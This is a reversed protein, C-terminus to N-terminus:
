AIRLHEGQVVPRVGDPRTAVAKELVATIEEGVLEHRELLADRLAEVLDRNSALLRRVTARAADLVDELQARAASDGIVASVLDRDTAAFSVLSGTMGAAGVMQAATRTAAALDSAPGTTTQGFFLEEAVWGGMAIQVLARLDYSTRTYVEECDGHALLGLASGRKVITLVELTRNPAVLWATVAHGAEHTAILSRETQTYTVPHGLGVLETIRAQEVDIFRMADDGRRLANVLAEDLLHEVMVPTWGSTAAAVRDRVAPEDLEPHHSRRALFHDVLARRGHADPPNFTLRRDFRGPRLLAPDLHDARNTAAILLIPARTPRRQAIQRHAPLLLNIAAVLRNYLRDGGVPEDFSQMQVLLENVVGGTGESIMANRVVGAGEGALMAAPSPLGVFAATAAGLMGGRRLAIADIEEIFGIAGGETRAATRLAKFYSRIKRATAGYYMSQFSTASVFLFPVGAEAAMAKATLTKGTGPPGEFLIGRRPTGGMKDAFRRHTQFLDISRRVDDVIPDIGVVDGLTVDVQEPRFTVHPSRGAGVQTGLLLAILAVFFLVPAIILPDVDPMVVLPRGTIAAWVVYAEAALVVLCLRVVRRRRVRERDIAIDHSALPSRATADTM